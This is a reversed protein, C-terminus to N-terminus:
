NEVESGEDSESDSDAGVWIVVPEIEEEMVGDTDWYEKEVSITHKVSKVWDDKTINTVATKFLEEVDKIKYTKNEKRVETKIKAWILEIANLECHRIPTRLVFHGNEMAIEDTVYKRKPKHQRVIQYIESKILKPDVNIGQLGLWGIMEGKRHSSVPSQSQETIKNHYVANDIVIVSPSDLAPILTNTFWDMFVTTNMEAHYDGEGKKAKFVLECGDIFGSEASGAHLIILRKGKGSPPPNSTEGEPSTWKKFPSDNENVWTEDVYVIQFGQERYGKITRLFSHRSAIVDFREFVKKRDDKTKKFKFGMIKLARWVSTKSFNTDNVEANLREVLRDITVTERERFCRMVRRRIVGMTFDDYRVQQHKKDPIIKDDIAMTTPDGHDGLVKYVTSLPLNLATAVRRAKSSHFHAKRVDLKDFYDNLSRIMERERATLSPSKPM